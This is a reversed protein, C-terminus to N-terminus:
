GFERELAAGWDALLRGRDTGLVERLATEVEDADGTAAIRRYLQVVREPGFRQALYDVFSWSQQYALDLNRGASHFDGDDPLAGPPGSIRVQRALDPALHAGSGPNDRYGVYDAFGELLWMPSGDVTDPRAAIHTVEHVLVSRLSSESLRQATRPNLVVRQGEVRRQAHDVRDAIAVAAIGDVSFEPGVLESLEQPSEPLLVGVRQPWRVGWVRNVEAVAEDLHAAVRETQARNERHGIVLGSRTAVPHLESFDWPGRWTRRAPEDPVEDAALYWDAGRRVFVYGLGRTTPASDVGHLAYRLSVRPSWTEAAGATEPVDVVSRGDVRYDWAAFPVMALNRYLRRQGERFEAPAAPDVSALFAAEDRQRVAQARQDLVARVAAERSEPAAANGAPGVAQQVRESSRQEPLSVVALGVLVAAAAAAALWGRFGRSGPM